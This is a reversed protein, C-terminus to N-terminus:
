VARREELVSYDDGIQNQMLAANRKLEVAALVTAFYRRFLQRVTDPSCDM